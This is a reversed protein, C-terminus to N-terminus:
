SCTAADGVYQELNTFVFRVTPNEFLAKVHEQGGGADGNPGRFLCANGWGGAEAEPTITKVGDATADPGDVIGKCHPASLSFGSGTAPSQPGPGPRLAWGLPREVAGGPPEGPLALRQQQAPYAKGAQVRYSLQLPLCEPRPAPAEVCLPGLAPTEWM